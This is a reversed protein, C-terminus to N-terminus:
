SRREIARGNDHTAASPCANHKLGLMVRARRM